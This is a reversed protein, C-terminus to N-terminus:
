KKLYKRIKNQLNTGIEICKNTSYGTQFTLIGPDLSLTDKNKHLEEPKTKIPNLLTFSNTKKNYHILFDCKIEKLSFDELKGNKQRKLCFPEKFVTPCFTLGSKSIFDKEIKICKSDKTCKLYRLRFHKIHGNKLNTLCSM